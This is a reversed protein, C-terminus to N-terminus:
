VIGVKISISSEGIQVHLVITRVVEVRRSTVVKLLQIDCLSISQLRIPGVLDVRLLKLLAGTDFLFNMYDIHSQNVGFSISVKYKKKKLVTVSDTEEFTGVKTYPEKPLKQNYDQKM